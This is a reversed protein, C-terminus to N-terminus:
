LFYLLITSIPVFSLALMKLIDAACRGTPLSHNLYSELDIRTTWIESRTFEEFTSLEPTPYTNSPMQAQSVENLIM